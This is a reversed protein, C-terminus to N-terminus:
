AAAAKRERPYFDSVQCGYFGALRLAFRPAIAVGAEARRLTRIPVNAQRAVEGEALSRAEREAMLDITPEDEDIGFTIEAVTVGLAQAVEREAAHALATSRHGAELRRVTGPAIGALNALEDITLGANLRWFWVSHAEVPHNVRRSGM